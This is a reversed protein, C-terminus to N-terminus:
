SQVPAPKARAKGYKERLEDVAWTSLATVTTVLAATIVTFLVYRPWGDEEPPDTM